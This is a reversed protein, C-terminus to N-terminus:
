DCGPWRTHLIGSKDSSTDICNNKKGNRNELKQQKEM